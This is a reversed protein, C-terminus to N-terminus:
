SSQKECISKDGYICVSVDIDWNIYRSKFAPVSSILM